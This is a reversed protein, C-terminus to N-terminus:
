KAEFVVGGNEKMCKEARIKEVLDVASRTFWTRPRIVVEIKRGSVESKGEYFVVPVLENSFEKIFEMFKLELHQEGKRYRFFERFVDGDPLRFMVAISRKKALNKL